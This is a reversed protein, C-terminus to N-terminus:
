LSYKHSVKEDICDVAFNIATINELFCIDIQQLYRFFVPMGHKRVTHVSAPDRLWSNYMEEVYSSSTGDLFPEASASSYTRVSSAALM